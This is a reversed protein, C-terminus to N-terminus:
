SDVINTTHIMHDHHDPNQNAQDNFLFLLISTPQGVVYFRLIQM